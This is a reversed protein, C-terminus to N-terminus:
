KILSPQDVFNKDCTNETNIPDPEYKDNGRNEGCKTVYEKCKEVLQEKKGDYVKGVKIQNDYATDMLQDCNVTKGNLVPCIKNFNHSKNDLCFRNKKNNSCFDNKHRCKEKTIMVSIIDNYNPATGSSGGLLKKLNLYKNKYKLYKIKYNQDSDM